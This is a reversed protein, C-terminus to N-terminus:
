KVTEEVMIPDIPEREKKTKKTSVLFLVGVGSPTM